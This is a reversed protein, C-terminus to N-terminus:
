SAMGKIRGRRRKRSEEVATAPVPSSGATSRACVAGAAMVRSPARGSSGEPTCLPSTSASRAMMQARALRSARMHSSHDVVALKALVVLSRPGSRSAELSPVPRM